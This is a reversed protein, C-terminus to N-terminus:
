FRPEKPLRPPVKRQHYYAVGLSVVSIAFFAPSLPSNAKNNFLVMLMIFILGALTLMRSRNAIGARQISFQQLICWVFAALLLIMDIWTPFYM